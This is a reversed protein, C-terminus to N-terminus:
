RAPASTHAECPENAPTEAPEGVPFAEFSRPGGDIWRSISQGVARLEADDGLVASAVVAASLLLLGLVLKSFARSEGRVPREAEPRLRPFGEGDVIPGRYPPLKQGSAVRAAYERLEASADIGRWKLRPLADARSRPAIEVRDLDAEGGRRTVSYKKPLPLTQEQLELLRRRAVVQFELLFPSTEDQSRRGLPSALMFELLFPSTEEQSVRARPGSFDSIGTTM